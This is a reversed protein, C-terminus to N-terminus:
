LLITNKLKTRMMLNRIKTKTKVPKMLHLLLTLLNMVQQKRLKHPSGLLGGLSAQHTSHLGVPPRLRSSLRLQIIWLLKHIMLSSTSTINNEWASRALM